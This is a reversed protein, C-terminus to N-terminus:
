PSPAVMFKNLSRPPSGTGALQQATAVPAGVLTYDLGRFVPRDALTIAQSEPDFSIVQDTGRIQGLGAIAPLAHGTADAMKITVVIDGPSPAFKVGAPQPVRTPAQLRKLRSVDYSPLLWANQAPDYQDIVGLRLPVAR